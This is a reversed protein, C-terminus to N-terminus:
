ESSVVVVVVVVMMMMLPVVDGRVVRDHEVGRRGPPGLPHRCREHRAQRSGDGARDPAVAVHKERAVHVVGREVEGVRHEGMRGVRSIGPGKERVVPRGGDLDRELHREPLEQDVAAEQAGFPGCDPHTNVEVSTGAGGDGRGRM